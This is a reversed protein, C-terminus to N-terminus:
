SYTLWLKAVAQSRSLWLSAVVLAKVCWQVRAPHAEARLAPRKERELALLARDREARWDTM